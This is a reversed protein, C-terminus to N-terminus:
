DRSYRGEIIDAQFVALDVDKGKWADYSLGAKQQCCNGWFEAVSWGTESAVQPLFCGSGFRSRVYIGDIGLRINEPDTCPQLPTLVSIDIDVRPLEALQIRRGVFRPDELLSARAYEALTLYLPQQSVFCGICGRLQSATKLTVFCGCRSELGAVEPLAPMYTDSNVGAYLADCVIKLMAHSQETSYPM